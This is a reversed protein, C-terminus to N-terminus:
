KFVEQMSRIRLEHVSAMSRELKEALDRGSLHIYQLTTQISRHGAFLAIEHIDWDARALDTLCLHRLTHTTFRPLGSREAIGEVVKTWTWISVPDSRNRRSESLFLPGPAQSLERRHRLWAALLEGTAASYPVVRAQRNKTTEARISLLRQSFDIDSIALSCLEERRLGADYALALMLRNRLSESRATALLQRWQEDTPIWPLRHYHPILGRARQGGFCRGPTYHGRGVPNDSRLGDQVLFDYFLRVGTLRQQMTANALGPSTVPTGSRSRRPRSALHHVYAAIHERTASLPAVSYQACFALYDELARGYADITNPALGYKIQMGLWQRAQSDQAVLPFREWPLDDM